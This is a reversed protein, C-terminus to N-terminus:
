QPPEADKSRIDDYTNWCPSLALTAALVVYAFTVAKPSLTKEIGPSLRPPVMKYDILAALASATAAAAPNSRKRCAALGAEYLIGWGLMAGANVGLGICSERPSFEAPQSVEDGDVIHAIANIPSWPSGTEYMGALMVAATTAGALAVGTKIGAILIRKLM